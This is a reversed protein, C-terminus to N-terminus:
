LELEDLMALVLLERVEMPVYEVCVLSFLRISDFNVERIPFLRSEVMGEVPTAGIEGNAGRGLRDDFKFLLTFPSVTLFDTTELLFLIPLGPVALEVLEYLVVVVLGDRVDFVFRGEDRALMPEIPLLLLSVAVVVVVPLVGPLDGLRLRTIDGM